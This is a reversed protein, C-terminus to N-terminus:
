AQSPSSRSLRPSRQAGPWHVEHGVHDVGRLRRPEREHAHRSLALTALQGEALHGLARRAHRAGEGRAAHRAAVHHHGHHSVTGFPHVRHDPHPAEARGDLGAGLLQARGVQAGPDLQDVGRGDHGVLAIDIEDILTGSGASNSASGGAGTV